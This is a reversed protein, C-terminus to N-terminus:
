VIRTCATVAAPTTAIVVIRDFGARRLKALNEAIDSKGTEVEVAIRGSPKEALLDIAGNGHIVHERTIEYGQQRFYADAKKVWYRHELSERPQPGPDIDADNCVSRGLDTLDYLVVQGSRTAIAVPQMIGAADLHQRIANGKRRSLKLREYRSVTTSLPRAVLDALFRIEERSLQTQPSTPPDSGDFAPDVPDPMPSEHSSPPHPSEQQNHIITREPAPVPTIPTPRAWSAEPPTSDGSDGAMQQRIQEDSVSGEQIPCRPVKVLFAEPHEDALRVVASGVPLTSLSEKQEDNLNM